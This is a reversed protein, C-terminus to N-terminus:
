ADSAEEAVRIRKPEQLGEPAMETCDPPTQPTVDRIPSLSDASIGLLCGIQWQQPSMQEGEDLKFTRRAVQDFKDLEALHRGVNKDHLARDKLVTHVKDIQKTMRGIHKEGHKRLRGALDNAVAKVAERSANNVLPLAAVPVELPQSVKSDRSQNTKGWALKKLAARAATVGHTGLLVTLSGMTFPKATLFIFEEYLESDTAGALAREVLDPIAATLNAYRFGPPCVLKNRWGDPHAKDASDRKKRLKITSAMFSIM